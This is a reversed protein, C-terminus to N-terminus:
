SCIVDGNVVKTGDCGIYNLTLFVVGVVVALVLIMLAFTSNSKKHDKPTFQHDQM